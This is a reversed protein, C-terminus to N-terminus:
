SSKQFLSGFLSRKKDTSNIKMMEMKAPIFNPEMSLCKKFQIKAGDTNALAKHYLGKVFFYIDSSSMSIETKNIFTLIKELDKESGENAKLYAWSYYLYVDEPVEEQHLLGELVELAEPYQRKHLFEVSEKYRLYHDLVNKNVKLGSFYQDKNADLIESKLKMLQINLNHLANKLKVSDKLYFNDSHFISILKLVKKKIEQSPSEESIALVDAYLKLELKKSLFQIKQLLSDDRDQQQVFSEKLILKKTILLYFLSVQAEKLSFPLQVMVRKITDGISTNNDVMALLQNCKKIFGDEGELQSGTNACVLLHSEKLNFYSELWEMNMNSYLIKRLHYHRDKLFIVNSDSSSNSTKQIEVDFLDNSDMVLSLRIQVQKSMISNVTNSDIKNSQILREGLRDKSKLKLYKRIEKPKLWQDKALLVGFYSKKHTAQVQVIHGSSFHVSIKNDQNKNLHAQGNFKHISLFSFLSALEHNRLRSNAKIMSEVENLSVHEESCASLLNQDSLDDKKKAIDKINSQILKKDIPKPLFLDISRRIAYPIRSESFLGSTAWISCSGSYLSLEKILDIGNSGDSLLLDVVAVDYSNILFNWHFDKSNSVLDVQTFGSNLFLEKFAEAQQLHDELIIAKM